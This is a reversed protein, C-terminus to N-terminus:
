TLRPRQLATAKPINLVYSLVRLQLKSALRIAGTIIRSLRSTCASVADDCAQESIWQKEGENGMRCEVTNTNAKSPSIGLDDLTQQQSGSKSTNRTNVVGLSGQALELGVCIWRSKRANGPCTNM